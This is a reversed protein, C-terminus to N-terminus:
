AQPNEMHVMKLHSPTIYLANYYLLIPRAFGMQLGIHLHAPGM